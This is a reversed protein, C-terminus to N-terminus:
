PHEPEPHQDANDRNLSGSRYGQLDLAVYAYGAAQVANVVRTRTDPDLLRPFDDVDVEIRAVDGHHRVRVQMFGAQHLSHEAAEIQALTTATVPTGYPIRSALCAMAPKTATDLGLRASLTRIEAKTLGAEQLPSRMGGERAARSGPRWDSIDDANQGDLLCTIGATKAADRLAAVMILKCFYCRDPPNASYHPDSLEDTTVSVVMVGLAAALREAASKERRPLSPTDAIMALVHSAGLTDVALALLLSSDVGGSFAIAVCQETRLVTRLHELKTDIPTM